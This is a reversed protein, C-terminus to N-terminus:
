SVFYLLLLFLFSSIFSTLFIIAPGAKKNNHALSGLEEVTAM